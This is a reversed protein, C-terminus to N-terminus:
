INLRSNAMLNNRKVEMEMYFNGSILSLKLNTGVEYKLSQTMGGISVHERKSRTRSYWVFLREGMGRGRRSFHTWGSTDLHRPKVRM